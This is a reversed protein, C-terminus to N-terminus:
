SPSKRHSESRDPPAVRDPPLHGSDSPDPERFSELVGNFLKMIRAKAKAGKAKRYRSALVVLRRSPTDEQWEPLDTIRAARVCNRVWEWETKSLMLTEGDHVCVPIGQVQFIRCPEWGLDGHWLLPAEGAGSEAQFVMQEGHENRSYATFGSDIIAPPKGAHGYHDSTVLLLLDKEPIAVVRQGLWPKPVLVHAGNGTATAESVHARPEGKSSM